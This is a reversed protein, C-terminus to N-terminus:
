QQAEGATADKAGAASEAFVAEEGETAESIGLRQQLCNIAESLPLEVTFGAAAKHGGGGLERAIVAVDTDDKARLNGRVGEETERLVCCVSVGEISRLLEVIPEADEKVSGTEEFDGLSLWTLAVKTDPSFALHDLARNQLRLSALSRNQYVDRAADAPRAGAAVMSAALEFAVPTTNQFQFRGTDTMLGVFCCQAMEPTPGDPLMSMLRWILCTTSPALPEVYAYTTMHEPAAHHDIRLSLSAQELLREGAGLRPATPVDVAVFTDCVGDFAEAPILRDVGPLARLGRPISDLGGALVGTVHKGYAELALQLALQSGLCDGDPSVHGCIVINDHLLLNEAMMALTCNSQPPLTM